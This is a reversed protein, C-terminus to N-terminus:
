PSPHSLVCRVFLDYAEGNPTRYPGQPSPVIYFETDMECRGKRNGDQVAVTFRPSRTYRNYPYLVLAPNSEAIDVPNITGQTEYSHPFNGVTVWDKALTVKGSTGVFSRPTRAGIPVGASKENEWRNNYEAAHFIMLQINGFFEEASSFTFVPGKMLFHGHFFDDISLEKAYGRKFGENVYGSIEQGLSAPFHIVAVDYPPASCHPDSGWFTSCYQKEIEASTHLWQFPPVPDSAQAFHPLIALLFLLKQM